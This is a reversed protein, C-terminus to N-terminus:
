ETCNVDKTQQLRSKTYSSEETAKLIWATPLSLFIAQGTALATLVATGGRAGAAAM